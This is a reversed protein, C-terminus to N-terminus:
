FKAPDDPLLNAARPKPDLPKPNPDGISRRTSSGPGEALLHRSRRSAPAILRPRAAPTPAEIPHHADRRGIPGRRRRITALRAEAARERAGELSGRLRRLRRRREAQAPSADILRPTEPEFAGPDCSKV